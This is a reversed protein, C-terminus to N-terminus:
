VEHVVEDHVLTHPEHVVMEDQMVKDHQELAEFIVVMELMMWVDEDEAVVM